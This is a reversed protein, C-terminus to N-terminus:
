MGIRAGEGDSRRVNVKLLGTGREKYAFSEDQTYLKARTQFVTLDDEEGTNDLFCTIFPFKIRIIRPESVSSQKFALNIQGIM